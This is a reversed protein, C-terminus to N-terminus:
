ILLWFGPSWFGIWSMTLTLTGTHMKLAWPSISPCYKCVFTGGTLWCLHICVAHFHWAWAGFLMHTSMKEVPMSIDPVPWVWAHVSAPSLLAAISTLSSNNSCTSKVFQWHAWKLFSLLLVSSPAVSLSFYVNTSLQNSFIHSVCFLDHQMDSTLLECLLLVTAFMCQVTDCYAILWHAKNVVGVFPM